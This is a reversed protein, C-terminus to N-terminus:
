KSFTRLHSIVRDATQKGVKKNKLKGVISVWDSLMATSTQEFTSHKWQSYSHIFERLNSQLSTTSLSPHDVNLRSQSHLVPWPMNLVMLAKSATIKAANMRQEYLQLLAQDKHLNPHPLTNVAPPNAPDLPEITPASCTLGPLITSTPTPVLIVPVPSACVPEHAFPSASVLQDVVTTSSTALPFPNPTLTSLITPVPQPQVTAPGALHHVILEAMEKQGARWVPTKDVISTWDALMVATVRHIPQAKWSAYSEIFKKM